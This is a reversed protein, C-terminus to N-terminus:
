RRSLLSVLNAILWRMRSWYDLFYKTQSLFVASSNQVVDIGLFSHLPGWDKTVFTARMAATLGSISSTSSGTLSYWGCASLHFSCRVRTPSLLRILWVTKSDKLLLLHWSCEMGLGLPKNSASYFNRSKPCMLPVLTILLVWHNDITFMKRSTDQLFVNYVDLQQISWHHHLAVYLVVRVTPQKVVSSFTETTWVWDKSPQRSCGIKDWVQCYFWQFEKPDWCDM